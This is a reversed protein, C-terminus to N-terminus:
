KSLAFRRPVRVQTMNKRSVALRCKKQVNGDLRKASFVRVPGGSEREEKAVWGAISVAEGGGGSGATERSSRSSGSTRLTRSSRSPRRTPRAPDARVAAEDALPVAVAVAVPMADATATATATSVASYVATARPTAATAAAAATTGAAAPGSRVRAGASSALPQTTLQTPQGGAGAGDVSPAAVGEAGRAADDMPSRLRPVEAPVDGSGDGFVPEQVDIPRDPLADDKVGLMKGLFRSFRDPTEKKRGPKTWTATPKGAGGAGAGAVADSAAGAGAAAETADSKSARSRAPSLWQQRAEAFSEVPGRGGARANDPKEFRDMVGGFLRRKSSKTELAKDQPKVM